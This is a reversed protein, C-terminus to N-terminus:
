LVKTIHHHKHFPSSVADRVRDRMEFAYNELLNKIRVKNRVEEDEAKYRVADRVM